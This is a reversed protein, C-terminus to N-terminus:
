FINLSISLTYCNSDGMRARIAPVRIELNPVTKGLLIEALFQYRAAPGIHTVLTEYYNLDQEGLLLVNAQKARAKDNESLIINAEGVVLLPPRCCKFGSLDAVVSPVVVAM